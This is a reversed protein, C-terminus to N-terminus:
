EIEERLSFLNEMLASNKRYERIQDKLEAQNGERMSKLMQNIRQYRSRGSMDTFRNTITHLDTKQEEGDHIVTIDYTLHEGYFLTFVKQFIGRYVRNMPETHFGNRGSPDAPSKEKKESGDSAVADLRYHLIVQDEPEAKEEVIVKDELQYESVFTKPLNQFFRLVIGNKEAEKLISDAQEEEGADLETKESYYRLLTMKMLFNMQDRGYMERLCLGLYPNVKETKDFAAGSAYGIYERALRWQGGKEIFHRLIEPGKPVDLRSFMIRVLIRQDIPFTEVFFDAANKRLALMDEIAGNFYRVLYSLIREDFKGRKWATMCLVTLEEEEEFDKEEIMRDCLRVLVSDGIHESGFKNLLRYAREYFGFGLLVEGLLAQDAAAYARDDVREVASKLAYNDRHADYFGLLKRRAEDRFEDSFDPSDTVRAWLSVNEDSVEDDRSLVYLILGAGLSGKSLCEQAYNKPDMLRETSYATGSRYRNGEADEFFLETEDTFGHIYARGRVLLSSEEKKLERHVAIVRRANKDDCFVQETFIPGVLHDATEPDKVNQFFEQYIAAYDANMRGNALSEEAFDAIKDRYSEFTDPDEIRNRVINAYIWARNQESLTDNYMFYKRIAAPLIKQWNEPITEIYYEYLRTIRLNQELALAYWPFSRSDRSPGKILLRCIAELISNEPYKRYMGSLIQFMVPRYRKENDSLFAARLSLNRTLTGRRVAFALVQRSFRDISTLLSDDNLLIELAEAYLFPSRCGAEFVRRMMKLRVIPTRRLERDTLCTLKMLLFSGPEQLAWERIKETRHSREPPVLGTETCLYLYAGQIEPSSDKLNYKKLGYLLGLAEKQEGNKKRILSELLALYVEDGGLQRVEEIESLIQGASRLKGNKQEGTHDARGTEDPLVIGSLRDELLLEMIRGIHHQILVERDVYNKGLGSATVEFILDSRGGRIRIQGTRKRKGLKRANIVYPIDCVSGVFDEESIHSEPLELFDAFSSAELSINGWRSRRLTITHQVSDRIDYFEAHSGIMKLEVPLKCGSLILFEEMKQRTVPDSGLGRYLSRCARNEHELIKQFEQKKFLRFAEDYNRIALDTFERLTRIKGCSTVPLLVRIEAHVPIHYEGEDTALTIQGDITDGDSLGTGDIGYRLDIDRGTFQELDTVIRAHDSFVFGRIRKGPPASIRFKGEVSRGPSLEEEIKSISIQVEDKKM